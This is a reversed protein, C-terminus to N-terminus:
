SQTATKLLESVLRDNAAAEDDTEDDDSGALLKLQMSLYESEVTTLVFGDAQKKMLVDARYIEPIGSLIDAAGILSEKEEESLNVGSQIKEVAEIYNNM